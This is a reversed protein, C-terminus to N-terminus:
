AAVLARTARTPFLLAAVDAREAVVWGHWQRDGWTDQVYHAPRMKLSVFEGHSDIEAVHALKVPQPHRCTGCVVPIASRKTEAM